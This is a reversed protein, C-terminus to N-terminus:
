PRRGARHLRLPQNMPFGHHAARDSSSHLDIVRCDGCMKLREAAAGQFMAHGALRLVMAEIAKQTGFPKGCRVCRYPEVENLVRPQKRAKGDDGAAAAAAAHHGARPLHRCVPRVARMRRWSACSRGSPTTPLASEPCAGVCALCMTCKDSDVIVNGFPSGAAPLAIARRARRTCCCTTWRWSSRPASTAQVAFRPRSRV